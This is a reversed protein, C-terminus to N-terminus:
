DGKEGGDDPPAEVASSALYDARKNRERPIATLSFRQFGRRVETVQGVLLALERKKIKWRGAVQNVVLTSDSFVRAKTQGLSLAKEMAAILARYEAENNTATGIAERGEYLPNARADALVYGIGSPGPNGKCAGDVFITIEPASKVADVDRKLRDKSPKPAPGPAGLYQKELARLLAAMDHFAKRMAPEKMEPVSVILKGVDGDATAMIDLLRYSPSSSGPIVQQRRLLKRIEAPLSPSPM